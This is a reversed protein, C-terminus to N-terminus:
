CLNREEWMMLIANEKPEVYYNKRLGTKIFGANEYLHIAPMNHERVELYITTIGENKALSLIKRVLTAAIHRRRFKPSVAVNVIDAEDLVAKIGIYGCIVGNEEAVLNYYGKVLFMERVSDLSWPEHFCQTFIEYVAECDETKMQRILM